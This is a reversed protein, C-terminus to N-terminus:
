HKVHRGSLVSYNMKSVNKWALRSKSLMVFALLMVCFYFFPLDLCIHIFVFDLGLGVHLNLFQEL